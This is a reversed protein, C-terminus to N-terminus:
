TGPDNSLEKMKKQFDEIGYVPLSGESVGLLRELALEQAQFLRVVRALAEASGEAAALILQAAQHGQGTSMSVVLRATEQPYPVRFSGDQAGQELLEEYIPIMKEAAAEEMQDRFERHSHELFQRILVVAQHMNEMKIASATRYLEVLKERASKNKQGLIQQSVELIRVTTEEMVRAVLDEKSKFHHYFTGKAIGVQDIIKQVPTKEMGFKFFLGSAVQIIKERTKREDLVEETSDTSAMTSRRTM